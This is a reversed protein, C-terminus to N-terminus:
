RPDLAGTALLVLLLPFLWKWLPVAPKTPLARRTTM